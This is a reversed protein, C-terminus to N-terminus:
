PFRTSSAFTPGTVKQPHLATGSTTSRKGPRLSTAIPMRLDVTAGVRLTGASPGRFSGPPARLRLKEREGVIAGDELSRVLWGATCAGKGANASSLAHVFDSCRLARNSPADPTPLGVSYFGTYLRQRLQSVLYARAAEADLARLTKRPLSPSAREFWAFRTPCLITVARLAAELQRRDLTM